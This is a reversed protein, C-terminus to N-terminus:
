RHTLMWTGVVSNIRPGASSYTCNGDSCAIFVQIGLIASTTQSVLSSGSDGGTMDCASQYMPHSGDAYPWNNSTSGGLLNPARNACNFDSYPVGYDCSVGQCAPYGVNRNTTSKFTADSLNSFGLYGPNTFAGPAYGVIAFDYYICDPYAYSVHCNRATYATEYEVFTNGGSGFPTAGYGRQRPAFSVSVSGPGSSPFACHAATVVRNTAFLSGTCSGGDSLFGAYEIFIYPDYSSSSANFRNEVNDSLAKNVLWDAEITSPPAHGEPAITEAHRRAIEKSRAVTSVERTTADVRMVYFREPDAAEMAQARLSLERLM